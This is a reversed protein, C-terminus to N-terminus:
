RPASWTSHEDAIMSFYAAAEASHVVPSEVLSRALIDSPLVRVRRDPNGGFSLDVPDLLVIVPTVEVPAGSLGALIRSARVAYRRANRVHDTPRGNTWLMEEDVWVNGGTPRAATITFIGSPGVVVFDAGLGVVGDSASLVTWEDGLQGLLAAVEVEVPIRRRWGRPRPPKGDRRFLGWSSPGLDRLLQPGRGNAALRRGAPEAGDRSAINTM